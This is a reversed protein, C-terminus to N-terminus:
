ISISMWSSDHSDIMDRFRNLSTIKILFHKRQLLSQFFQSTKISTRNCQSVSHTSFFQGSRATKSENNLLLFSYGIELSKFFCSMQFYLKIKWARTKQAQTILFIDM